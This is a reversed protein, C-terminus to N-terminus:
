HMRNVKVIRGQGKCNCLSIRRSAATLNRTKFRTWEQTRCYIDIKRCEFCKLSLYLFHCNSLHVVCSNADYKEFYYYCYYLQQCIIHFIKTFIKFCEDIITLMKIELWFLHYSIKNKKKKFVQHHKQFLQM